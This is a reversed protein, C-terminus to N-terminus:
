LFNNFFHFFDKFFNGESYLMGEFYQLICLIYHFTFIYLFFFFHNPNNGYEMVNTSNLCLPLITRYITYILFFLSWCYCSLYQFLHSIVFINIPYTKYYAIMM